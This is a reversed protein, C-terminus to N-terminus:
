APFIRAARVTFLASPRISPGPHHTATIYAQEYDGVGALFAATRRADLESLVDDLLLIPAEGGIDRMVAYEAIKLALVATRQQGQSGFASLPGGDLLFLLDDRHPGALAMKRRREIPAVALLKAALAERAIEEGDGEFAVNPSYRLQLTEGASWRAHARAAEEALRGVFARRKVALRAGSEALVRNYVSLLAEDADSTERLLANKQRLAAQYRSLERYYTADHQSLAMNLFTRRLGPTGTVLQLDAPVFTVVRLTGLFQAYPIKKGARTFTKRTGAAKRAISCAVATECVGNAVTGRVSALEAGTRLMEADRAGRFSKGIGLVAIAELLNSKGQANEGIFLNLGLHPELELQTYNRFDAAALGLLRM